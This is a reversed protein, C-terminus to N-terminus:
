LAGNPLFRNDSHTKIWMLLDKDPPSKRLRLAKVLGIVPSDAGAEWGSLQMEALTFFRVLHVLQENSFEAAVELWREKPLKMLPAQRIKIDSDLVGNLDDLQRNESLAIFTALVEPNLNFDAAADAQAPDWAGVTM